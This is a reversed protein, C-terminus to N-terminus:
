YPSLPMIFEGQIFYLDNQCLKTLMNNQIKYYLTMTIFDLYFTIVGFNSSTLNIIKM